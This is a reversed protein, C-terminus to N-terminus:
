QLTFKLPSIVGSIVRTQDRSASIGVPFCVAAPLLMLGPRDAPPPGFATLVIRDSRDLHVARGTM